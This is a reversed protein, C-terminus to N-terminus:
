TKNVCEEWDECIENDGHNKNICEEHDDRDELDEYNQQCKRGIKVFKM